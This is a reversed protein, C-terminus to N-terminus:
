TIYLLSFLLLWVLDVMHWFLGVSYVAGQRTPSPNVSGSGIARAAFFLAVSGAVVHVLHFGTICFYFMYFDNSGITHGGRASLTYETIKIAAFLVGLLGAGFLLRTASRGNEPGTWRGLAVAVLVSGSILVLTNIFGLGIHLNRASDEFLVPDHGRHYSFLAFFVSFQFLDCILLLWLGTEGPVLKPKSRGRDARNVSDLSTADHDEDIAASPNGLM